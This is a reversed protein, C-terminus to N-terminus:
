KIKYYDIILYMNKELFLILVNKIYSPETVVVKRSMTINMIYDEFDWLGPFLLNM